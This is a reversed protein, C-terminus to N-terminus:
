TNEMEANESQASDGKERRPFRDETIHMVQNTRLYKKAEESSIDHQYVICNDTMGENDYYVRYADTIERNFIDIINSYKNDMIEVPILYIEGDKFNDFLYKKILNDEPDLVYVIFGDLYNRRLTALANIPLTDSNYATLNYWLWIPTGNKILEAVKQVTLDEESIEPLKLPKREQPLKKKRSFLGM